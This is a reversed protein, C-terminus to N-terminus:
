LEELLALFEDSMEDAAESCVQDDLPLVHHATVNLLGKQHLMDLNPAISGEAFGREVLLANAQEKSLPDLWKSYALLRVRIARDDDSLLDLAQTLTVQNTIAAAIGTPLSSVTNASVFECMANFAADGIEVDEQWNPLLQALDKSSLDLAFRQLDTRHWVNIKINPNADRLDGLLKGCMAPMESQNYVFLWSEM